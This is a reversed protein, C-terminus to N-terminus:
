ARPFQVLEGSSHVGLVYDTFVAPEILCPLHEPLSHRCGVKEVLHVVDHCDDAVADLEVDCSRSLMHHVQGSRKLPVCSLWLGDSTPDSLFATVTRQGHTSYM